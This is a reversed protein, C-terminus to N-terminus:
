TQIQIQTHTFSFYITLSLPAMGCQANWPWKPYQLSLDWPGTLHTM